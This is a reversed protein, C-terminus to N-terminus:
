TYIHYGSLKYFFISWFKGTPHTLSENPILPCFLEQIKGPKRSTHWKQQRLFPIKFM